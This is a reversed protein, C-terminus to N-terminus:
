RRKRREWFTLARFECLTVMRVSEQYRCDACRRSGSGSLEGCATLGEMWPGFLHKM